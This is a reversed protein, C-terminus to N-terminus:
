CAAEAEAIAAAFYGGNGPVVTPAANHLSANFVVTAGNLDGRATGTAFNGSGVYAGNGKEGIFFMTDNADVALIVLEGRAMENIVNIMSQDMQGFVANLEVEYFRTANTIDVQINETFSSSFLNPQLMYWKEDDELTINTIAGDTDYTISDWDVASADAIFIYKLGGTQSACPRCIGSTLHMCSSM